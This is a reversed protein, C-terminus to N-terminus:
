GIEAVAVGLGAAYIEPNAALAGVVVPMEYSKGTADTVNNFLFAKRDEAPIGGQFQWRALPHLESDKDIEREIRQLLGCKELRRLHDQLDIPANTASKDSM